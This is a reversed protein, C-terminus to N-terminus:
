NKVKITNYYYNRAYEKRSDKKEISLNHCYKKLYEKNNDLWEKQYERM